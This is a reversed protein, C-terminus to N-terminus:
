SGRLLNELSNKPKQNQLEEIMKEVQYLFEFYEVDDFSFPSISFFRALKFSM